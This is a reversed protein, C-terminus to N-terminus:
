SGPLPATWLHAGSALWLRGHTVLADTMGKDPLDVSSWHGGTDLLLRSSSAEVSGVGIIHHGPGVRAFLDLPGRGLRVDPVEISSPTGNSAIWWAVLRDSDHGVVLCRREPACSVSQAEALDDSASPLDIQMWEGEPGATLWAVPHTRVGAGFSTVSGAIVIRDGWSDADHASPQQEDTAALPTGRSSGRVWTQGRLRWMAVDLGAGSDSVRSGILTPAISAGAVVATLGGGKPGGFTEFEQPQERLDPDGDLHGSWATWRPIGHAGGSRGGFGYLHHRSRALDHWMTRRGYFSDTRVHVPEWVNHGYRLLRPPTKGDVSGDSAVLVDEGTGHALVSPERDDPLHVRRWALRTSDDAAVPDTCGVLSSTAVLVVTAVLGPRLRPSPRTGM